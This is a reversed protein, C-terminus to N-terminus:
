PGNAGGTEADSETPLEAKEPRMPPSPESDIKGFESRVTKATDRLENLPERFADQMDSQIGNAVRRIEAYVRTVKRM